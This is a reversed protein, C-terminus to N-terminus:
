SYLLTQYLTHLSKSIGAALLLAESENHDSANDYIINFRNNCPYIIM